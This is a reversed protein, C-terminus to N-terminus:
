YTKNERLDTKCCAWYVRKLDPDFPAIYNKAETHYKSTYFIEKIHSVCIDWIHYVQPVDRILALVNFSPVTVKYISFGKEELYTVEHLFGRCHNIQHKLEKENGNNIHLYRSPRYFFHITFAM